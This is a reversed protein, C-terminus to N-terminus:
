FPCENLKNIYEEFEKYSKFIKKNDREMKEKIADRIFQSTNVKYKNHLTQLSKKLTKSIMVTQRETYKM